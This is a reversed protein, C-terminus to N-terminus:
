LVTSILNEPDPNPYPDAASSKPCIRAKKITKYLQLYVHKSMATEKLINLLLDLLLEQSSTHISLNEALPRTV